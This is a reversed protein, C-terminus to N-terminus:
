ESHSWTLHGRSGQHGQLGCPGMHGESLAPRSGATPPLLGRRRSTPRLQQQCLHPPRGEAPVQVPGAMWLRGKGGGRRDPDQLAPAAVHLFLTRVQCEGPCISWTPASALAPALPCLQALLPSPCVCWARAPSTWPPAPLCLASSATLVTAPSLPSAVLALAGGTPSLRPRLPAAAEAVLVRGVCCSSLALPGLPRSLFSRPSRPREQPPTSM